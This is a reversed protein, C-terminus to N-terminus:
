NERRPEAAVGSVVTRFGIDSIRDVDLLRYRDTTRLFKPELQMAGGRLIKLDGKERNVPNHRPSTAYYDQRYTDECWEMVNGAMNVAGYPSAGAECCTVPASSLRSVPHDVWIAREFTPPDDGWPFRRGDTGRAAKEWEAETPLRKGAWAAYSQADHWSVSSVPQADHLGWDPAQVIQLRNNPEKLYPLGSAKWKRWSVEYKDIYFGDLDVQHVPKENLDGTDSGMTFPGPPVYVMIAKDKKWVYEGEKTGRELGEPLTEGQWGKRPPAASGSAACLFAILMSLIVTQRM